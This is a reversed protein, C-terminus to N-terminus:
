CTPFQFEHKAVMEFSHNYIEAFRSNNEANRATVVANHKLLFILTAHKAGTSPCLVLTTDACM